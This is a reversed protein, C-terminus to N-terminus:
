GGSGTAGELSGQALISAITEPRLFVKVEPQGPYFWATLAQSYLDVFVELFFQFCHCERYDRLIRGYRM